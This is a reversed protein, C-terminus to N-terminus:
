GGIYDFGIGDSMDILYGGAYMSDLIKASSIELTQGTMKAVPETLGPLYFFIGGATFRAFRNFVEVGNEETVQGVEVGYVPRENEDYELLGQKIWASASIQSLQDLTNGQDTLIQQMSDLRQTFGESNATITNNTEQQYVAFDTQAVYLGQLKKNIEQYYANVIDASKIIFAKIQKFDETKQAQQAAQRSLRKGNEDALNEGSEMSQMAVNLQQTLQYLFTYVEQLQVKPDGSFRRPPSFQVNM